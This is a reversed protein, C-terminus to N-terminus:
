CARDGVSEFNADRLLLEFERLQREHQDVVTRCCLETPLTIDTFKTVADPASPSLINGTNDLVYHAVADRFEKQLVTDFYEKIPRGILDSAFLRLERHEPIVEKTRTLTFSLASAKKFLEPRLRRFIGELIKYYCLFRYFPSSANKAERYLAYVPAMEAHLNATGSGVVHTPYPSTYGFLWGLNKVDHCSPAAAILPVNATYSMHDLIPALGKSFTNRAVHVSRARIHSRVGAFERQSNLVVEYRVGGSVFWGPDNVGEPLTFFSTGSGFAIQAEIQRSFGSERFFVCTVEFDRESTDLALLRTEAEPTDPRVQFYWVDGAIGPPALEDANTTISLQPEPM